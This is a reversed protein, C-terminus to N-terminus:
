GKASALDLLAMGEALPVQVPPVAALRIRRYWLRNL